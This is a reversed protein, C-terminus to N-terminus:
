HKSTDRVQLNVGASDAKLHMVDRGANDNVHLTVGHSDASFRVVANGKGDDVIIQAKGDKNEIQVDSLRRAMRQAKAKPLVLPRVAGSPSFTLEGAQTWDDSPLPKPACRFGPSVHAGEVDLVTFDCDPVTFSAASDIAVALRVTSVGTLSDTVARLVELRGLQQGEFKFPIPDEFSAPLKRVATKVQEIKPKAFAIVAMGIGFIMLAGLAIKFWYRAM